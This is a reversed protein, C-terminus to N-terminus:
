APAASLIKVFCNDEDILQVTLSNVTCQHFSIYNDAVNTEGQFLHRNTSCTGVMSEMWLIALGSLSIAQRGM